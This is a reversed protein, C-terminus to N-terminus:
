KHGTEQSVPQVTINTEEVFIIADSPCNSQCTGCEICITIDIHSQTDGETIAGTECGAVCAGCSICKDTIVFPM